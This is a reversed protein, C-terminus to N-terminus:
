NPCIESYRWAQTNQESEKWQYNRQKENMDFAVGEFIHPSVFHEQIKDHINVALDLIM